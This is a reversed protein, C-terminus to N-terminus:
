ASPALYRNYLAAIGYESYGTKGSPRHWRIEGVGSISHSSNDEPTQFGVISGTTLEQRSEMRFGGHSVDLTMATFNTIVAPIVHPDYSFMKLYLQKSHRPFKRREDM